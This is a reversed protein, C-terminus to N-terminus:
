STWKTDGLLGLLEERLKLKPKSTPKTWKPTAFASGQPNLCSVEADKPSSRWRTSSSDGVAVLLAKPNEQSREAALLSTVLWPNTCNWRPEVTQRKCCAVKDAVYASAASM